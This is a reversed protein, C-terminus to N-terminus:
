DVKVADLPKIGKKGASHQHAKVITADLMAYEDDSQESLHNFVQKWVGKKSWRSFRTHIVRFDGFCEPLDRWPVGTKYRYIVAEVFLRNDKATVGVDSPQGPLIDKIREWQDDRLAHRRTMIILSM